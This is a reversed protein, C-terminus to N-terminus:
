SFRLTRLITFGVSSTLQEPESNFTVLVRRDSAGNRGALAGFERLEEAGDDATNTGKGIFASAGEVAPWDVDPVIEIQRTTDNPDLYRLRTMVILGEVDHDSTERSEIGVSALPTTDGTRTVTHITAGEGPTTVSVDYGAPLEYTAGGLDQTTAGDVTSLAPVVVKTMTAVADADSASGAGGCAALTLALTVTAAALGALPRNRSM